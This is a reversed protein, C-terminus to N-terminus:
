EDSKEMEGGITLNITGYNPVVTNGSGNQQIFLPNQIIQQNPASNKQQNDTETNKGSDEEDVDAATASGDNIVPMYTRIDATIQRGMDGCYDRPGGGSKPCWLDYTSLGVSNDKRNVVVYHWVGLLFAPLCVKELGGLAAKKIQKGNECVYFFEDEKISDDQQILDMLAKVLRVDKHVSEGRDIFNGAFRTMGALAAPYNMRVRGDFAEIEPTNGFPLYEGKSLRCAKFDNTKTKLRDIEPPKYDPNIVRILGILVEPDSLGDRDGKYHERATKRPKLAQLVLVFFTGGCLRPKDDTTV